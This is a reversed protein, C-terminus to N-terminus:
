ASYGYDILKLSHLLLILHDKVLYKSKKLLLLKLKIRKLFCYILVIHLMTLTRIRLGRELAKNFINRGSRDRFARALGVM